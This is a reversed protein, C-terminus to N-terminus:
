NPFGVWRTRNSRADNNVVIVPDLHPLLAAKMDSYNAQMATDVAIVAQRSRALPDSEFAIMDLDHEDIRKQERRKM